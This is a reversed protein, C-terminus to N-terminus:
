GHIVARIYAGCNKCYYASNGITGGCRPCFDYEVGPKVGIPEDIEIAKTLLGAVWEAAEKNGGIRVNMPIGSKTVKRTIESILKDKETQKM